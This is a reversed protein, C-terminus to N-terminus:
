EKTSLHSPSSRNSETEESISEPSPLLQVKFGNWTKRFHGVKGEELKRKLVKFRGEIFSETM